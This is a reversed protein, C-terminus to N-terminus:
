DVVERWEYHKWLQFASAVAGTAIPLFRHMTLGNSFLAMILGVSSVPILYVALTSDLRSLKILRTVTAFYVLGILVVAFLGGKAASEIFINHPYPENLGLGTGSMPNEYFQQISREQFELRELASDDLKSFSGFRNFSATTAGYAAGIAVVIGIFAVGGKRQAESRYLATAIAILGVGVSIIAGRKESGFLLWASPVTLVLLGLRKLSTMDASNFWLAVGCLVGLAASYGLLINASDGISVQGSSNKDGIVLSVVAFLISLAWFAIAMYRCKQVIEQRGSSNFLENRTVYHFPLVLLLIQLAEIIGADVYMNYMTRLTLLLFFVFWIYDTIDSKIRPRGQNQQKRNSRYTHILAAVCASLVVVLSAVSSEKTDLFATKFLYVMASAALSMMPFYLGLGFIALAFVAEVISM